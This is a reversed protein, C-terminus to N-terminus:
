LFALLAKALAKPQQEPVFHGSDRIVVSKVDKFYLRLSDGMDPISHEGGVALLRIPLKPQVTRKNFEMDEVIKRYYDFAADRARERTLM